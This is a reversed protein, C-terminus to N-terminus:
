ACIHANCAFCRSSSRVSAFNARSGTRMLGSTAWTSSESASAARLARHRHKALQRVLIEDDLGIRGRQPTEDPFHAAGADVRAAAALELHVGRTVVRVRADRDRARADIRRLQRQDIEVRQLGRDLLRAAVDHAFAVVVAQRQVQRQRHARDRRGQGVRLGRARLREVPQADCADVIVVLRALREGRQQLRGAGVHVRERGPLRQEVIQPARPARHGASSTQSM